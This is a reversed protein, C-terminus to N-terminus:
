DIGTSKKSIYNLSGNFEGLSWTWACLIIAPLATIMQVRNRRGRLVKRVLREIVVIPIFPSALLYGLCVARSIEEARKQGFIRGWYFREALTRRLTSPGRDRRVVIQPRLWLVAGEKQLAWNVTVENYVHIWLSQVSELATRKYSINVDTLYAVAGEILPPQYRSFDLFYVAWNLAGTGSHEVAGGIVAYSLEHAALLQDCWDPDPTGYDELVALINGQAAKLGAATRVDYIDHIAGPNRLGLSNVKGLDLWKVEPYREAIQDMGTVAADFPFIVEVPKGRIQPILADLCRHSFEGGGVVRIIVSLKIKSPESQM